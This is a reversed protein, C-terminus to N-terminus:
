KKTIVHYHIIEPISKFEDMNEFWIYETIGNDSIIKNIENPPLAKRTWIIYQTCGAELNYPYENKALVIDKKTDGFIHEDIFNGMTVYKQKTENKHKNYCLENDLNRFFRKTTVHHGKDDVDIYKKILNYGYIENTYVLEGSKIHDM